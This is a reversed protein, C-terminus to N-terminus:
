NYQIGAVRLDKWKIFSKKLEDVTRLGRVGLDGKVSFAGDASKHIDLQTELQGAQLTMATRQAIYPQFMSLDLKALEVHATVDAGSRALQATADLTASSNISTRAKIDLRTGPSTNFGAVHIDLPSLVLALAPTVQRDETSIKMRDVSIDPVSVTWAPSPGPPPAQSSGSPPASAPTGAGSARSTTGAAGASTPTMLELLNLQGQPSVWAKVEGGTLSVKGIEVARRAVDVQTEHVDLKSVLIYDTTGQRPRLKLDSVTTDHVDVKIAPAGGAEDFTYDGKVAVIGSPIELAFPQQLYTWITNAQLDTVAFTGHSSLPQLLITGRWDLREGQPSAAVLSYENQDGTSSTARTSFNRLEFAIPKLEARFPMAHSLDEFTGGGAVVALRDIFLRMPAAPQPPRAPPPSAFGKGLDALNLTGDPRVVTRVMPRELVIEHFSPALRFLSNAELDVHLRGFALLPQGDSDPLSFDGVDLTLTFPNFRIDGVTLKRKYHSSVFEGLGSRLFHPVAWFGAAAYSAVLLVVISLAIVYRRVTRTLM